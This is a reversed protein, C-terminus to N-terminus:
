LLHNRARKWFRYFSRKRSFDMSIGKHKMFLGDALKSSLSCLILDNSM